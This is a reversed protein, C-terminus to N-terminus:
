LFISPCSALGETRNVICTNFCARRYSLTHAHTYIYLKELISRMGMARESFVCVCVCLMMATAARSFLVPRSWAELTTVSTREKRRSRGKSESREAEEM